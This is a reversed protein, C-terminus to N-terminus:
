GFSRGTGSPSSDFSSGHVLTLYHHGRQWQVEDIGLAKIGTLTRHRLGWEVACEVAREVSDWSAHFAEAVERWSRRKAWGALFWRYATTRHNKGDGWPVEEVAVGGSTWASDSSLASFALSDV